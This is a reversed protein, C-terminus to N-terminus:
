KKRTFWPRNVQKSPDEKKKEEEDDHDIIIREVSSVDWERLTQAITKKAEQIEEELPEPVPAPVPAPAPTPAASVPVPIEKTETVNSVKSNDAAPKVVPQPEPVVPKPPATYKAPNELEDLVQRMMSETRRKVDSCVCAYMMLSLAKQLKARAGPVPGKYETLVEEVAREVGSFQGMISLAKCLYNFLESEKILPESAGKGQGSVYSMLQSIHELKICEKLANIILIRAIHVEEYRKGNPHAVWGRKVWNQITSGELGTVACVQSLSLGGTAKLLMEIKTFGMEGPEIYAEIGPLPKERTDSM